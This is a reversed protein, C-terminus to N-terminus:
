QREICGRLKRPTAIQEEPWGNIKQHEALEESSRFTSCIEWFSEQSRMLPRVEVPRYGFQTATVDVVQGNCIVFCHESNIAIEPSFGAALLDEFLRATAVGCMGNLDPPFSKEQRAKDRAWKRTQKAIM